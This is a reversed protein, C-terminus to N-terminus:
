FNIRRDAAVDTALPSIGGGGDFGIDRWPACEWKVHLGGDLFVVGGGGSFLSAVKWSIIGLFLM